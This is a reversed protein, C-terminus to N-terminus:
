FISVNTLGHKRLFILTKLRIVLVGLRIERFLFDLFESPVNDIAKVVKMLLIDNM